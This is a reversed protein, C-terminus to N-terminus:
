PIGIRKKFGDLVDEASEGGKFRKEIWDLNDCHSKLYEVHKEITPQWKTRNQSIDIVTVVAGLSAHAGSNLTDMATFVEGALGTQKKDLTGTGAYVKSNVAQWMASFSNPPENSAIHPIEYPQAVFVLYLARHYMEEAQRFRTFYAFYRNRNVDDIISQIIEVLSMKVWAALQEPKAFAAHIGATTPSSLHPQKTRCGAVACNPNVKAKKTAM